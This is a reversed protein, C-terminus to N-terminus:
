VCAHAAGSIEEPCEVAHHLSNKPDGIPISYYRLSKPKPGNERRLLQLRHCSVLQLRPCPGQRRNPSTPRTKSVANLARPLSADLVLHRSAVCLVPRQQFSTECAAPQPEPSGPSISAFQGRSSIHYVLVLDWLGTLLQPYPIRRVM